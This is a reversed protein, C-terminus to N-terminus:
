RRATRTTCALERRTRRSGVAHEVVAGVDDTLCDLSAAVRSEECGILYSRCGERSFEEFIM